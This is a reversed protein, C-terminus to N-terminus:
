ANELAAVAVCIKCDRHKTHPDLHSHDKAAAVIADAVALLKLSKRLAGGIVADSDTPHVPICMRWQKGKCIASVEDHAAEIMLRLADLKM